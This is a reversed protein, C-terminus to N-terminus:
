PPPNSNQTLVGSALAFLLPEDTVGLDYFERSRSKRIEVVEGMPRENHHGSRSTRIEGRFSPRVGGQYRSESPNLTLRYGLRACAVRLDRELNYNRTFGLRWRKNTTDWHADGS